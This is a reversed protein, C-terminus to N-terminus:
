LSYVDLINGGGFFVKLSSCRILVNSFDKKTM